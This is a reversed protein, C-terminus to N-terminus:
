ASTRDLSRCPVCQCRMAGDVSDVCWCCGGVWLHVDSTQYTVDCVELVRKVFPAHGNAALIHTIGASQLATVDKACMQPGIFLGAEGDAVAQMKTWGAQTRLHALAKATSSAMTFWAVSARARSQATTDSAMHTINMCPINCVIDTQKKISVSARSAVCLRVRVCCCRPLTGFGVPAHGCRKQAMGFPLTTLYVRGHTYPRRHDRTTALKRCWTWSPHRPRLTRRCRHCRRFLVFWRTVVLPQLDHHGHRTRLATTHHRPLASHTEEHSATHQKATATAICPHKHAQTHAQTRM